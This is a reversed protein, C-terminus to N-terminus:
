EEFFDASNIQTNLIYAFSNRSRTRVRVLRVISGTMGLELGLALWWDPELPHPGVQRSFLVIFLERIISGRGTHPCDTIPLNRLTVHPAMRIKGAASKRLIISM